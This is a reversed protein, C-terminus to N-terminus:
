KLIKGTEMFWLYLDLEGLNLQMKNAIKKLISEIELYKSKSLSKPKKDLLQNNILLDIIHFDIIAFNNFGVNRLFHSAEKYGLGKINKVLWDRLEYESEYSEIIEKINDKYKRNAEIYNARKNYFRYKVKKLRKALDTEMLTLFGDDVENQVRMCMEASCNATMICFCLEKFIENSNKVGIQQFDKIRSDIIEKIDSQKLKQISELLNQM